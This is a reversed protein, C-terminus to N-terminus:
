LFFRDTRSFTPCIIGPEGARHSERQGGEQSEGIAFWLQVVLSAISHLRCPSIGFSLSNPWAHTDQAWDEDQLCVCSNLSPDTRLFPSFFLFSFFLLLLGTSGQWPAWPLRSVSQARPGRRPRSPHRPHWTNWPLSPTLLSLTTNEVSALLANLIILTPLSQPFLSNQFKM